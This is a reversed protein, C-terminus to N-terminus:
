EPKSKDNNNVTKKKKVAFCDAVTDLNYLAFSYSLLQLAFVNGGRRQRRRRWGRKHLNRRHRRGSLRRKRDNGQRYLLRWGGLRRYM